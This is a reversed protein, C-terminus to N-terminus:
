MVLNHNYYDVVYGMYDKISLNHYNGLLTQLELFRRERDKTRTKGAEPFHGIAADRLKVAVLSEESQFQRIIVWINANHPISIQIANNFGESTNTTTAGGDVVTAYKSWLGHRFRPNRRTNTRMNFQGVWNKEFYDLFENIDDEEADWVVDANDPISPSVFEEWVKVIDVQPVLSLAWMYRVLTQFHLNNNYSAMLHNDQLHKRVVRKFHTDCCVIEVEPFVERMAKIISSEFDCYFTKPPSLGKAKLTNFVVKYTDAEKNPLLFFACPVTIGTRSKGTM